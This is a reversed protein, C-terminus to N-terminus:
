IIGSLAMMQIQQYHGTKNQPLLGDNFTSFSPPSRLSLVSPSNRQQQQNLGNGMNFSGQRSIQHQPSPTGGVSPALLAAAPGGLGANPTMFQPLFEGLLNSHQQQHQSAMMFSSMGAAQNQNWYVPLTQNQQGFEDM